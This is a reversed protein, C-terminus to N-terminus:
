LNCNLDTVDRGGQRRCGLHGGPSRAQRKSLSVPNGECSSMKGGKEAARSGKGRSELRALAGENEKKLLEERERVFRPKVVKEKKRPGRFGRDTNLM